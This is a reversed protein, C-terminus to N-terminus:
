EWTNVSQINIGIKANGIIKNTISRLIFINLFHDPNDNDIFTNIISEATNIFEEFENPNGDYQPICSLYKFSLAMTINNSLSNLESHCNRLNNPGPIETIGSLNIKTNNEFSSLLNNSTSLAPPRSVTRDTDILSLSVLDQLIEDIGSM